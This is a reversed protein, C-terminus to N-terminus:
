CGAAAGPASTRGIDRRYQMGDWHIDAVAAYCRSLATDLTEGTATVGLVRGGATLWEGSPGRATAAHFIAVRDRQARDL